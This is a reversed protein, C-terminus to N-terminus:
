RVQLARGVGTAGHDHNGILPVVCCERTRAVVREPDPGRGTMDGLSWLESVGCAEAAAIVADLADAHAHADGFVAVVVV